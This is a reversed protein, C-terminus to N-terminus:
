RPGELLAQCVEVKFHQKVATPSRMALGSSTCLGESYAKGKDNETQM